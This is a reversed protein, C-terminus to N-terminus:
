SRIRWSNPEKIGALPGFEEEAGGAPRLWCRGTEINLRLNRSVTGGVAESHVLIGAKWLFKRVALHNRKGINFLHEDRLMQAAGAIRVVLRQKVAGLEYARRLLLSIGTDGFMFPNREAKAPDMQSDPLMYHPLGGIRAAPDHIAVAICSGLAYTVLEEGCKGSVQCDAMGVIM